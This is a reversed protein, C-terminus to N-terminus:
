AAETWRSLRPCQSGDGQCIGIQCPSGPDSAVPPPQYSCHSPHSFMTPLTRTDGSLLAFCHEAATASIMQLSPNVRLCVPCCRELTLLLVYPGFAGCSVCLPEDHLAAHLANVSHLNLIRAQRLIIFTYGAYDAVAKFGLHDAVVARGYFSVKAFAAVSLPDLYGVCELLVELPFALLRGLSKPRDSNSLEESIPKGRRAYSVANITGGVARLPSTWALGHLIESDSANM